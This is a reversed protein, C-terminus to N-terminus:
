LSCDPAKQKNCLTESQLNKFGCECLPCRRVITVFLQPKGMQFRKIINTHSASKASYKEFYRYIMVQVLNSIGVRSPLSIIKSRM